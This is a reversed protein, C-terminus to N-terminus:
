TRSPFHFVHSGSCCMPTSRTPLVISLAWDHLINDHLTSLLWFLGGTLWSFTCPACPGGFSYLILGGIGLRELEDASADAEMIPKSLPGAYFAMDM